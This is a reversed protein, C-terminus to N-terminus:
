SGAGTMKAALVEGIFRLLRLQRWIRSPQSALRYFWELGLGQWFQPARRVHGTITDLTGGIGQCVKVTTLQDIHQHIWQEQRPSGLAVFLINAGSDNIQQVLAPMEEPKVYGNARGVIPIGPHREELKEVAGSSVDEHAGYIFLKYGMRASVSCINQMLDAGPVRAVKVGHLFRLAQVLGIGDPILLTAKAFFANLFENERLVYVKEPNVALVYGPGAGTRVQEDVLALAGAMDVADVPTGLISHRVDSM